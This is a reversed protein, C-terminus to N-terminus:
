YEVFASECLGTTLSRPLGGHKALIELGENASKQKLYSESRTQAILNGIVKGREKSNAYLPEGNLQAFSYTKSSNSRKLETRLYRWIADNNPLRGLQAAQYQNSIFAVAHEGQFIGHKPKKEYTKMSPGGGGWDTALLLTDASSASRLAAIAETLLGINTDGELNGLEKNGGFWQWVNSIDIVSLTEKELRIWDALAAMESKERLDVQVVSIKDQLALRHINAFLVDDHLYNADKFPYDNAGEPPPEHFEAFNERERVYTKWWDFMDKQTLLDHIAPRLPTNSIRLQWEEFSSHLRLELYDLRNHALKLLGANVWNFLVAAPDYDYCILASMQPALAAMMFGRETGISLYAGPAARALIPKAHIPTTENPVVYNGEGTILPDPIEFIDESAYLAGSLLLLLSFLQLILKM